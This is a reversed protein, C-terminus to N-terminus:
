LGDARFSTVAFAMKFRVPCDGKTKM